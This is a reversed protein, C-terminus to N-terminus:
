GGGREKQTKTVSSKFFFRCNVFCYHLKMGKVLNHQSSGPLGQFGTKWYDYFFIGKTFGLDSM